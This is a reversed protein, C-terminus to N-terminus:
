ATCGERRYALGMLLAGFVIMPICLLQGMTLWGVLWTALSLMRCASLIGRCLPFLRLLHCVPRQRGHDAAAQASYFWLITFLAVGELAFEYLQSPHRALQAPDTPFVM